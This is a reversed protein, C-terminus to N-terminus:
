GAVEYGAERVAAAVDVAEVDGVVTLEGSALDVNAADVGRVAFVESLVARKCHECTMGSVVYTHATSTM